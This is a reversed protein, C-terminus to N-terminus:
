IAWGIGVGQSIQDRISQVDEQIESSIGGRLLQWYTEPLYALRMRFSGADVKFGQGVLTDWVQLIRPVQRIFQGGLEERWDEPSSWFGDSNGPVFKAGLTEALACCLGLHPGWFRPAVASWTDTAFGFKNSKHAEIVRQAEATVTITLPGVPLGSDTGSIARVEAQLYSRAPTAGAVDLIIKGYPFIEHELRLSLKSTLSEPNM